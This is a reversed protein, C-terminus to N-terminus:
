RVPWIRSVRGSIPVRSSHWLITTGVALFPEIDFTQSRRSAVIVDMGDVVLRAMPGLNLPAGKFMARMRIRGDHLSKVYATLELPAGHLDDYKGGLSIQLRAGVGAEHCVSAVEPDVLFGFCANDLKADLMARLLHTGDGPAGGGCNDSTEHIVVPQETKAAELRAAVVAEDASLSRPRFTERDAWLGEALAEAIRRAQERDGETTVAVFTGVHVTDTYPFGHFWSVDIVGSEEEALLIQALKAKGPGLFTTAFSILMPASAVHTVPRFNEELMRQILAVAEASRKHLDIHPYHHCAFVGDLADAMDQTINGHLDFSAVVPVAEGVQVRVARALDGELDQIGEVVGAGHLCLMVGDIVGNNALGDLIEQKFTDYAVRDITGSPQAGAYLLPVPEIGLRECADVAGGVDSEQGRTELLRKGRLQYFENAFTPEKCYTNTEHVIGAIAIRM